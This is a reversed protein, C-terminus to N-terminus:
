KSKSRLSKYVLSGLGKLRLLDQLLGEPQELIQLPTWRWQVAELVLYVKWALELNHFAPFVDPLDVADNEDPPKFIEALELYLQDLKKKSRRRHPSRVWAGL